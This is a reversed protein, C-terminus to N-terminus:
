TFLDVVGVEKDMNHNLKIRPKLKIKGEKLSMIM